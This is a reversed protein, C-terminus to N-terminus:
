WPCATCGDHTGGNDPGCDCTTDECADTQGADLRATRVFGKPVVYAGTVGGGYDCACWDHDWGMQVVLEGGECSLQESVYWTRQPCEVSEGILVVEQTTWDITPLDPQPNSFACRTVGDWADAGTIIRWAAGEQPAPQSTYCYTETGTLAEIRQVGLPQLAAGDLEGTPCSGYPSPNCATLLGVACFMTAIRRM